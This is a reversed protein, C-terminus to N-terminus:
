EFTAAISDTGALARYIAAYLMIMLTELTATFGSTVVSTLLKGFKQGALLIFVLGCLTDAVSIAVVGVIGVVFVLFFISWGRAKTLAFTRRIADFPDRRNEAAVVAPAPAIRGFLYLGPVLFLLSAIGLMFSLIISVLFYFPTLGLAQVLAAGVTVGRAFVLRLMTLTGVIAFVLRLLYWPWAATYYDTIMQLARGPLIGPPPEPPAAFVAILLAPLFLFVGAIAALLPGHRRLLTLTDEWVTNYTFHM